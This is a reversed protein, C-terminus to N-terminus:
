ALRAALTKRDAKGNATMPFRDVVVFRRPLMYVPLREALRARLLQSVEFESGPLPQTLVVFAGLAHARGNKEIPLVVADRVGTVARLNAEVDGLEIRHGHLKIQDDIRGDCFFVDGECHGRDGTRYARVGDLEFFARATLDPRGLYGPSVNPGAIVIEGQEGDGVAQNGSGVVLLRTGPIPRGIPLPSHRALIDRDIRISSTAV